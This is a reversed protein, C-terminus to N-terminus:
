RTPHQRRQIQDVASAVEGATLDHLHLEVHVIPAGGSIPAVAEETGKLALLFTLVAATFSSGVITVVIMGFREFEVVTLSAFSFTGLGSVIGELLTAGAKGLPTQPALASLALLAALGGGLGAALVGLGVKTAGASFDTALNIGAWTPAAAALLVVFTRVFRVGPNPKTM